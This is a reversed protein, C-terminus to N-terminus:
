LLLVCNQPLTHADFTEVASPWITPQIRLGCSPFYCHTTFRYRVTLYVTFNKYPICLQFIHSPAAYYLQCVAPQLGTIYLIIFVFYSDVSVVDNSYRIIKNLNAPIIYKNPQCDHVTPTQLVM